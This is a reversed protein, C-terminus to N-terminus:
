RPSPVCSETSMRLSLRREEFWLKEGVALRRVGLGKVTFDGGRSISSRYRRSDQYVAAVSRSADVIENYNLRVGRRTQRVPKQSKSKVKEGMECPCELSL